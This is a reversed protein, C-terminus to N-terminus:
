ERVEVSAPQDPPTKVEVKGPTEGQPTKVEITRRQETECSALFVLGCVVTLPLVFKRM